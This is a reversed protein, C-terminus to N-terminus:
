THGLLHRFYARYSRRIAARDENTLAYSTPPNAVGLLLRKLDARDLISLDCVIIQSLYREILKQSFRDVDSTFHPQYLLIIPKRKSMAFLVERAMDNNLYGEKGHVKNYVIHFSSTSIAGYFELMIEYVRPTKKAQEIFDEAIVFSGDGIPHTVHIDIDELKAKLRFVQKRNEGYGGSIQTQLIM